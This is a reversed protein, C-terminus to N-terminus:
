ILGHSKLELEYLAIIREGWSAVERHLLDLLDKDIGLIKLGRRLNGTCNEEGGIAIIVEATKLSQGALNSWPLKWEDSHKFYNALADIVQIRTFGSAAVHASELQVVGAKKGNSTTLQTGHAASYEHLRVISSVIGTIHTQAVVFATGVLGEMVGSEEDGIAEFGDEDGSASAAAIAKAGESVANSLSELVRELSTSRAQIRALDLHLHFFNITMNATAEAPVSGIATPGAPLSRGREFHLRLRM